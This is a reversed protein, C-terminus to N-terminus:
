NGKDEDHAEKWLFPFDEKIIKEPTKGKEIPCKCSMKKEKCKGNMCFPGANKFFIQNMEYFCQWIKLMVYRTEVTNRKCTRQGIMHKWQYPTASVILVNRLAQPAMYGAVDHDNVERTVEKYKEMEEKCDLLYKKVAGDGQELIEYPILFGADDSYDSYQLSASVFKVENQHRTIQALFRRSAGVIVVNIVGLKQITPHPFSVLSEALDTGYSKEYLSLFDEMNKIKHGRQTLRAACVMMKESNTISDPNLIKVEIKNM